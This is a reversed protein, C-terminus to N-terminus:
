DLAFWVAPLISIFNRCPICNTIAKNKVRKM